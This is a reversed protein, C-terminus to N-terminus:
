GGIQLVLENLDAIGVILRAKETAHVTIQERCKIERMVQCLKGPIHEKRRLRFDDNLLKLDRGHDIVDLLAAARSPLLEGALSSFDWLCIELKKSRKLSEWDRLEHSESSELCFQTPRTAATISLCLTLSDEFVPRAEFLITKCTRLLALAALGISGPHRGEKRSTPVQYASRSDRRSYACTSLSTQM